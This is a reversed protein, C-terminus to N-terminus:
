GQWPLVLGGCVSLLDKDSVCDCMAECFQTQLSRKRIECFSFADVLDEITSPDLGSDEM